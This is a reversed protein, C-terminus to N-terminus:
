SDAFATEASAEADVVSLMDEAAEVCTLPLSNTFVADTFM